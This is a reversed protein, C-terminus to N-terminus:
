EDADLDEKMIEADEMDEAESALAAAAASSDSQLEILHFNSNMGKKTSRKALRKSKPVYNQHPGEIDALTEVPRPVVVATQGSCTPGSYPAYCECEGTDRHCKGRASCDDPCLIESCTKGTYGNACACAGQWCVGHAANCAPICQTRNVPLVNTANHKKSGSSGSRHKHSSSNSGAPNNVSLECELGSYGNFCLCSPPTSSLDCYGVGNCNSACGLRACDVGVYGLACVCRNTTNSCQGGHQCSYPCAGQVPLVTVAIIISILISIMFFLSSSQEGGHHDKMKV